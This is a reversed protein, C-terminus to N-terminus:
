CQHDFLSLMFLMSAILCLSTYRTLKAMVNQLYDQICSSASNEYVLTWPYDYPQLIRACYPASNSSYPYM